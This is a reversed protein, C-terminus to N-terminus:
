HIGPDTEIDNQDRKTPFSGSESPGGHRRENPGIDEPEEGGLERSRRSQEAGADILAPFLVALMGQLFGTDGSTSDMVMYAILVAIATLFILTLRLSHSSM